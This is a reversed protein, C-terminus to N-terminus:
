KGCPEEMYKLMDELRVSINRSLAEDQFEQEEDYKNLELHLCEHRLAARLVVPYYYFWHRFRGNLAIPPRLPKQAKLNNVWGYGVCPVQWWSKNTLLRPFIFGKEWEWQLPIKKFKKKLGKFETKLLEDLIKQELPKM